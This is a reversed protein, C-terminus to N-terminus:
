FLTHNCNLAILQRKRRVDFGYGHKVRDLMKHSIDGDQELPNDGQFPFTQQQQQQQQKSIAGLTFMDGNVAFTLPDHSSWTVPIKDCVNLEKVIGLFM